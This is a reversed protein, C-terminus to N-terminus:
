RAEEENRVKALADFLDQPRASFLLFMCMGAFMVMGAFAQEKTMEIQEYVGPNFLMVLMGFIAFALGAHMFFIHLWIMSKMQRQATKGMKPQYEPCRADPHMRSYEECIAGHQPCTDANTCEM